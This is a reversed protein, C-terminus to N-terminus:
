WSMEGLSEHLSNDLRISASPMLTAHDSVTEPAVQSRFASDAFIGPQIGTPDDTSGSTPWVYAALELLKEFGM